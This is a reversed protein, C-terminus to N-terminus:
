AWAQDRAVLKDQGATIRAIAEPKLGLARLEARSSNRIRTPNGEFRELLQLLVASRSAFSHCLHLFDPLMDKHM